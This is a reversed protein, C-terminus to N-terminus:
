RRGFQVKETQRKVPEADANGARVYAAYRARAEKQREKLRNQADTGKRWTAYLAIGAFLVAGAILVPLLWDNQM